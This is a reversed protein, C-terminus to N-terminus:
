SRSAMKPILDVILWPNPRYNVSIFCHGAGARHDLFNEVTVQAVLGVRCVAVSVFMQFFAVVDLGRLVSRVVADRAGFIEAVSKERGDGIEPGMQVDFMAMRELLIVSEKGCFSCEKVPLFFQFFRLPHPEDFRLPVLQSFVRHLLIEMAVPGPRIDALTSPFSFRFHCTFHSM